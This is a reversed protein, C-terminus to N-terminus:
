WDLVVLGFRGVSGVLLILSLRNLMSFWVKWVLILPWLLWRRPWYHRQCHKKDLRLWILWNTLTTTVLCDMSWVWTPYLDLHLFLEDFIEDLWDKCGQPAPQNQNSVSAEWLWGRVYAKMFPICVGDDVRSLMDVTDCYNCISGLWALNIRLKLSREIVQFRQNISFRRKQDTTRKTNWWPLPSSWILTQRLIPAWIKHPAKSLFPHLFRGAPHWM